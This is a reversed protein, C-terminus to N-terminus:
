GRNFLSRIITFFLTKEENGVLFHYTILVFASLIVIGTLYVNIFKSTYGFLIILISVFIFISLFWKMDIKISLKKISIWLFLITGAILSVTTAIAAGTIGIKPILYINLLINVVLIVISIKLALDPRNIASLSGGIPQCMGGRIITGILLILLPTTAYFFNDGFLVSIIDKAFFAVFLGITLLILTTVKLVNTLMKQLKGHEKKSWYESTAPYTIKQISMPVFWFFQSIALAVSYYGVDPTMLFYGIFIIDLRANIQNVTNAMALKGGFPVLKKVNPIFERIDLKAIDKLLFHGYFIALVSSLGIGMIVGKVGFGLAVFEAMFFFMLVQRSIMLFTYRKMLRLGNFVGLQMDLFASVPFVFILLKILNVLAPTGFFNAIYESLFYLIIGVFTGFGLSSLLGATVIQNLSKQKNKYTSVYKILATPLGFSAFILSLTYVTLILSYLGLGDPGLWRALLPRILFGIFLTLISSLFVWSIDITFKKATGTKDM